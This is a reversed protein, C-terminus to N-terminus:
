RAPERSSSHPRPSRSAVLSPVDGGSFPREVEAGHAHREPAVRRRTAVRVDHGRHPHPLRPYPLVVPHALRRVPAWRRVAHDAVLLLAGAVAADLWYHNGTGVIVLLTVTPHLIWLWRRPSRGARIIGIAVVVAWGFHLSPMAAFQNAVSDTQPAAHYVSPGYAAATDIFGLNSLMRPPALPFLTHITLAAGTMLILVTRLQLYHHRSRLFLWVLFLGTLPFHVYAYFANALRVLLDSSLLVDQVHLESPLRLLSEANVVRDANDFAVADPHAILLRAYKYVLFLGVVIVIEGVVFWQTPITRSARAKLM